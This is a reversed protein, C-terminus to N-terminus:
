QVEGPTTDQIGVNEEYYQRWEVLNVTYTVYVTNNEGGPFGTGIAFVFNGPHGKKEIVHLM